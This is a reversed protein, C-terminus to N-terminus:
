KKWIVPVTAAKVMGGSYILCSALNEAPYENMNEVRIAISVETGPPTLDMEIIQSDPDKGHQNGNWNTASEGSTFRAKLIAPSCIGSISSGSVSLQLTCKTTAAVNKNHIKITYDTIYHTHGIKLIRHDSKYRSTPTVTMTIGNGNISAAGPIGAIQLASGKIAQYVDNCISTIIATLIATIIIAKYPMYNTKYLRRVVSNLPPGGSTITFCM